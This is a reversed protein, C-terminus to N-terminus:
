KCLTKAIALAKEFLTDIDVVPVTTDLAMVSREVEELCDSGIYCDSVSM